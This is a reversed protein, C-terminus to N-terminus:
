EKNDQKRNKLFDNWIEEKIKFTHKETSPFKRSEVDEIYKSISDISYENQNSYQKVFKPVFQSQMGLLDSLVLVQGNTSNGAGIGITPININSTIYSAVKHPVCELVISWCGAQQLIQATELLDQIQLYSKNGQVKFGGLSHSKQPTLGIHAMVPIGRSCLEQILQITYKDRTHSGVEFKVSTVNSSLKMLELASSIGQEHSAEFSGFPMDAIILSPGEARCVSKVHYKFEEFSLDTTSRYGLTTMALSDGVLIMDCNSKHVWNATIFDYATCMSIPIGNSYKEHMDPISKKKISDVIHSSYSRLRIPSPKKLINYGYRLM